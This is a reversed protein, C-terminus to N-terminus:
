QIYNAYRRRKRLIHQRQKESEREREREEETRGKAGQNWIGCGVYVFRLKRPIEMGDGKEAVEGLGRSVGSVGM